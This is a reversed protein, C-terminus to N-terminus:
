QQVTNCNEDNKENNWNAVAKDNGGELRTRPSLVYVRGFFIDHNLEADDSVEHQGATHRQFPKATAM